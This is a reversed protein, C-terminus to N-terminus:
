WVGFMMVFGVISISFTFVVVMLFFDVSRVLQDYLSHVSHHIYECSSNAMINAAPSSFATFIESVNSNTYFTSINTTYTLFAGLYNRLNQTYIDWADGAATSFAVLNKVMTSLSTGKLTCDSSAFLTSIRQQFFCSTSNFMNGMSNCPATTINYLNQVQNFSTRTSGSEREGSPIQICRPQRITIESTNSPDLIQATCNLPHYHFQDM